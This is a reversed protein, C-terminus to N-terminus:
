VHTWWSFLQKPTLPRLGIFRRLKGNWGANSTNQYWYTVQGELEAIEGRADWQGYTSPTDLAREVVFKPYASQDTLRTNPKLWPPCHTPDPHQKASARPLTIPYRLTFSRRKAPDHLAGDDSEYELGDYTSTQVISPLAVIDDSLTSSDETTYHRAFITPHIRLRSGLLCVFRVPLDELIILRKPSAELEERELYIKFGDYSTFTKSRSSGAQFEIVSIRSLTEDEAKQSIMAKYLGSYELAKGQLPRSAYERMLSLYAFSQDDMSNIFASFDVRRASTLTYDHRDSKRHPLLSTGNEPYVRSKWWFDGDNIFSADDDKGLFGDRDQLPSYM